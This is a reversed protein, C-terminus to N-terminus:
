PPVCGLHHGCHGCTCRPSAYTDWSWAVEETRGLDQGRGWLWLQGLSAPASTPAPLDLFPAPHAGDKQPPRPFRPLQPLRCSPGFQPLTTVPLPALPGCILSVTSPTPLQSAQPPPHNLFAPTPYLQLTVSSLFSLHTSPVLCDRTGPPSPSQAANRHPSTPCCSAVCLLASSLTPSPALPDEGWGTAYFLTMRPGPRMSVAVVKSWLLLGEVLVWSFAVLFLLHMIATVAVCTVQPHSPPLDGGFGATPAARNQTGHAQRCRLGLPTGTPFTEPCHGPGLAVVRPM